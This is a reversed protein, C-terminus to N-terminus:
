QKAENSIIQLWGKINEKACGTKIHYYYMGDRLSSGCWPHLNSYNEAKHVTEGWRNYVEMSAGPLIDNNNLDHILLCDNLGDGNPTM